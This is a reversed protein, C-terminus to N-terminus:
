VEVMCSIIFINFEITKMLFRILDVIIRSRYQYYESSNIPISKIYYNIVENIRYRSFYCAVFTLKAVFVDFNGLILANM